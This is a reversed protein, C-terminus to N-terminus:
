TDVVTYDDNSNFSFTDITTTCIADYILPNSTQTEPNYSNKLISADKIAEDYFSPDVKEVFLFNFPIVDVSKM